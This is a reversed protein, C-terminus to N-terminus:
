KDNPFGKGVLFIKGEPIGERIFNDVGSQETCFFLDSITDTLVRNSEEPISRDFSRLGAEVHVLKVGLKVPRSLQM